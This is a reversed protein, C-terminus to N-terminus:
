KSHNALQLAAQKTLAKHDTIRGANDNNQLQLAIQMMM